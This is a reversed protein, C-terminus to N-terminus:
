RPAVVPGQPVTEERVCLVIYGEGGRDGVGVRCNLSVYGRFGESRTLRSRETFSEFRIDVHRPDLAKTVQLQTRGVTPRGPTLDLNTERTTDAVSHVNRGFLETVTLRRIQGVPVRVAIRFLMDIPPKSWPRVIDGSFNDTRDFRNSDDQVVMLHYENLVNQRSSGPAPDRWWLAQSPHIEPRWGHAEEAVWPGYVGIDHGVLPSLGTKPFFPNDYLHEDPTVEAELCFGSTRRCRHVQSLDANPLADDLVFSFASTPKIFINWDAEAGTGDFFGYHDVEGILVHQFRDLPYWNLGVFSRKAINPGIKRNATDVANVGLQTDDVAFWRDFDLGGVQAM